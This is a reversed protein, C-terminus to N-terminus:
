TTSLLTRFFCYFGRGGLRRAQVTTFYVGNTKSGNPPFNCRKKAASFFFSHLISLRHCYDGQNENEERKKKKAVVVVRQCFVIPEIYVCKNSHRKNQVTLYSYCSLNPNSVWLSLCIPGRLRKSSSSSFWFNYDDTHPCEHICLIDVLKQHPRTWIIAWWDEGLYMWFITTVKYYFCM